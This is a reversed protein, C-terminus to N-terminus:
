AAARADISWTLVPLDATRPSAPRFEGTLPAGIRIGDEDGTLLGMIRANGAQPLEVLVNVYPVLDAYAAVFPLHSRIWSYVRGVPEVREWRFEYGGCAPCRWDAPWSWRECRQCRQIRLEGAGLGDWYPSDVRGEFPHVEDRENTM